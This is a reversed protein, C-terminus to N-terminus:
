KFKKLADETTKTLSLIYDFGALKLLDLIPNSINCIVMKGSAEDVKKSISLLSRMGGSSLYQIQNFDLVLNRDGSDVRSIVDKEFDPSTIADLRGVLTLFLVNGKRQESITVANDAM